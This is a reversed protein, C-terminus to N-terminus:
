KDGLLMQSIEEFAMSRSAKLLIVSGKKINEKLYKVTDINNKFSNIKIDKNKVNDSIIKANQGITILESINKNRLNIFKGIQAHYFDSQNGLEGMDGLVLILDKKYINIASEISAKVSDPNANYYDNILKVNNKLIQISGRTGVPNYKLLGEQIKISKIGSLDGVEIALISNFVNYKGAVNLEFNQNRYTFITHNENMLNITYARKSIFKKRVSNNSYKKILKCKPSILIGEEHLYNLIECKAKAINEVSGLRGIHATGINTIVAIDPQAYKSLLEIEGLGRMGMEVVLFETNEPMSLITQCLGIENNHNLMSKHTKYKTSLVSYIMEKVTTKGSSGTVAIVIPNIKKRYNNALKLYAELTNEVVISFAKDQKM